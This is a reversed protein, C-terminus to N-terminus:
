GTGMAQTAPPAHRIRQISCTICTALSAPQAFQQHPAPNANYAAPSAAAETSGFVMTPTAHAVPQTSRIRFTTGMQLSAPPAFLLHPVRKANLAAPSASAGALGFAMTQTVYCVHRTPPTRYITGVQKTVSCVCLLHHAYKASPAALNAGAETSGTATVQTAPGAHPTPQISCTTAM